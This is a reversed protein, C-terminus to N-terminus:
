LVTIKLKVVRDGRAKLREWIKLHEPTLKGGWIRPSVKPETSRRGKSTHEAIADRRTLCQGVYLGCEGTTGWRIYTTKRAAM